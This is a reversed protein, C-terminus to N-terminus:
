TLTQSSKNYTFSAEGGFEGDDNFQVATDVGDPQGGISGKGALKVITNGSDKIFVSPDATNYNVAFEGYEVGGSPTLRLTADKGHNGGTTWEVIQQTTGTTSTRFGINLTFPPNM